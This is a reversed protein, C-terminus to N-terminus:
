EFCYVRQHDSEILIILQYFFTILCWFNMSFKSARRYNRFKSHTIIWENFLFNNEFLEANLRHFYQKIILMRIPSWLYKAGM